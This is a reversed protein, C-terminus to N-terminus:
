SKRLKLIHKSISSEKPDRENLMVFAWIDAVTTIEILKPLPFHWFYRKTKWQIEGM